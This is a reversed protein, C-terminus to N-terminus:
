PVSYDVLEISIVAKLLWYPFYISSSDTVFSGRVTFLFSSFDFKQNRIIAFVGFHFRNM